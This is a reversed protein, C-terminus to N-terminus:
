QKESPEIIIRKVNTDAILYGVIRLVEAMGQNIRLEHEGKIFEIRIVYMQDLPRIM